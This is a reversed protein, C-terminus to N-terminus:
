EDNFTIDYSLELAEKEIQKYTSWYINGPM